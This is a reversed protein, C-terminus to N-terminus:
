MERDNLIHLECKGEGWFMEGIGNDLYEALWTAHATYNELAHPGLIAPSNDPLRQFYKSVIKSLHAYNERSLKSQSRIENAAM